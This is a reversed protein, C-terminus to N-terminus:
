DSAKFNYVPKAIYEIEVTDGIAHIIDEAPKYAQPAEDLTSSGVSWTQVDTMSEQFEELSIVKKAASRSMLRGAGHPASNNWDPNGKGTAVIVGDRMNLPIAVQEGYKASIAGKRITIKSDIEEVYNHATDFFSATVADYEQRFWEALISSIIARNCLAFRQTRKMDAIYADFDHGELWALDKPIKPLVSLERQIAEHEESTVATKHKASIDARIQSHTKRAKYQYFECVKKGLNRSGTHVTLLLKTDDIKGIEIYHNGGGLTGCSKLHRDYKDDGINECIIKVDEAIERPIGAVAKSHVAFGAPIKERLFADFKEYDISKDCHVVTAAVGCGIDVGVLNPVIMRTDTVATFGIVCGKGAHVDPMIKISANTFMQQNCLEVIQSIAEQEINDTYVTAKTYKGQLEIM